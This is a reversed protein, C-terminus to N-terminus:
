PQPVPVIVVEAAVSYTATSVKNALKQALDLRGCWGEAYWHPKFNASVRKVAEAVLHLNYDAFGMQVAFKAREIEDDNVQNMYEYTGAAIRELRGFSRKDIPAYLASRDLVKKLDNRVLVVHTYTRNTSRTFTQGEFAVTLKRTM